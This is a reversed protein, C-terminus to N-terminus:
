SLAIVAKGTLLVDGNQNVAEIDLDVLNNGDAERKDAVKGRCTITDGPVAMAAFRNSFSKIRTQGAWGTLLRGLVAMNFMGHIIIGPLGSSRAVEDDLHIPSPDGSAKAFAAIDERTVPGIEVPPLADGITIQDYTLKTM